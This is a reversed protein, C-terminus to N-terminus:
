LPFSIGHLWAHIVRLATATTTIKAALLRHATGGLIIPARDIDAHAAIDVLHMLFIERQGPVGCRRAIADGGLIIKLVGLVIVTDQALDVQLHVLAALLFIFIALGIEAAILACRLRVVALFVGGGRLLVIPILIPALGLCSGLRADEGGVGVALGLKERRSGADLSSTEM